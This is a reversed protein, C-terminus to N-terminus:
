KAYRYATSKFFLKVPKSFGKKWLYEVLYNYSNINPDGKILSISLKSHHKKVDKNVLSPKDKMIKLIEESKEKKM